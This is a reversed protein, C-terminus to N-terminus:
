CIKVFSKLFRIDGKETIAYITNVKRDNLEKRIYILGSSEARIDSWLIGGSTNTDVVLVITTTNTTM